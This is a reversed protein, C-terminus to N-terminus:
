FLEWAALDSVSTAAPIDSIALNGNFLSKRLQSVGDSEKAIIHNGGPHYVAFNAYQKTNDVNVVIETDPSLTTIEFLVTSGNNLTVNKSIIGQADKDSPVIPVYVLHENYFDMQFMSMHRVDSAASSEFTKQKQGSFANIAFSALIGIIAMAVMLEILSFGKEKM